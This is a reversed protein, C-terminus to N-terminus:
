RTHRIHGQWCLPYCKLENTVKKKSLPISHNITITNKGIHIDRILLKVVKQRGPIDMTQANENMSHLFGTITTEMECCQDQQILQLKINELEKQLTSERERLRGIRSKLDNISILGEQYADLLKDKGQCVKKLETELTIQRNKTLDTAKSATLRRQIESHVLKPDELLEIVQQWILDDLYDQRIPRSSCVRGNEHRYDDSGFCRYYHIKKKSTKTSTRYYSYSCESCVMIGQLLSPEKTNRFSLEKNQKLREQALDFCAKEILAPVTISIWEDEPCAKNSSCRPSFGGKMRLPRTIRKRECTETKGFAAQGMYAPNKLMAWIVSRDWRMKGTKTLIRKKTLIRAIEGISKMEHTFLNFIKRVVEAQENVVEYDANAVETKKIYRYGYPAGSLVNLCNNKAKYRKGRRSREMIQAREYEAIMGQFQQLLQDEPTKVPVSKLFVTEVGCRNFEEILLIQYVYRRSLRDPSYVLVFEIQGETVLDRLRELAPRALTSGTYGEDELIFEKPVVYGHEQAYERLLSTQSAITNEEKQKESSVRAYIAAIKKSPPSIM